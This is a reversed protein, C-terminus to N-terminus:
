LCYITIGSVTLYIFHLQLRQCFSPSWSFPLIENCKEKQGWSQMWVFSPYVDSACLAYIALYHLTCHIMICHLAVGFAVVSLRKSQNPYSFMPKPFQVRPPDNFMAYHEGTAEANGQCNSHISGYWLLQWQDALHQLVNTELIQCPNYWWVNCCIWDLLARDIVAFKAM